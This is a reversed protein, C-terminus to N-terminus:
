GLWGTGCWRTTRCGCRASTSTATLRSINTPSGPIRRAERRVHDERDAVAFDRIHGPRAARRGTVVCFATWRLLAKIAWPLLLATLHDRRGPLRERLRDSPGRAVYWRSVPTSNGASSHTSLRSITVVETGAGADLFDHEVTYRDHMPLEPRFRMVMTEPGISLSRAFVEYGEVAQQLHM